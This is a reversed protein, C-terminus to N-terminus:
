HNLNSTNVLEEQARIATLGELVAYRYAGNPIAYGQVNNTINQIASTFFATEFIENFAILQLSTVTNDKVSSPSPGNPISGHAQAEVQVLQQANPTPFGEGTPDNAFSFPVASALTSLGILSASVFSAHM